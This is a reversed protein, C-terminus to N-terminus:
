TYIYIYMCITTQNMNLWANYMHTSCRASIWISRMLRFSELELLSLGGSLNRHSGGPCSTRRSFASRWPLLRVICCSSRFAWLLSLRICSIVVHIESIIQCLNQLIGSCLGWLWPARWPTLGTPGERPSSCLTIQQIQIFKLAIQISLGDREREIYISNISNILCCGCGYHVTHSGPRNGECLLAWLRHAPFGSHPSCVLSCTTFKDSPWAGSAWSGQWNM